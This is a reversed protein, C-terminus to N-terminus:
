LMKGSSKTLPTRGAREAVLQGASKSKEDFKGAAIDRLIGAGPDPMLAVIGRGDNKEVLGEARLAEVHRQAANPVCELHDALQRLTPGITTIRQNARIFELAQKRENNM